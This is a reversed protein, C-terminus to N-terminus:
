DRGIAKLIHLNRRNEHEERAGHVIRKKGTKEIKRRDKEIIKKGGYLDCKGQIMHSKKVITRLLDFTEGKGRRRSKAEL